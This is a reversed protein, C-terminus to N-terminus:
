LRRALVATTKAQFLKGNGADIAELFIIYIGVPLSEGHDNQGNWIVERTAGSRANNLLKAVAYGRLDFISLNVSSYQMPLEFRVVLVDDIGDGNPSFPNPLATLVGKREGPEIFISNRFGPTSGEPLVNPRWNNSLNADFQPNMREYSVGNRISADIEYSLSDIIINHFDLLKITDADNNLNPWSSISIAPVQIDKAVGDKLIIFEGPEIILSDSIAKSMSKEDGIKWGLLSIEQKGRNYLEVWEVNGHAPKAMFENLILDNRLFGVPLAFHGINNESREDNEAVLSYEIRKIGSSQFNSDFVLLAEDGPMLDIDMNKELQYGNELALSLSTLRAPLLGVNKVPISIQVHQNRRPKVPEWMIGSKIIEADWQRPSASNMRGPTSGSDALSHKWNLVSTSPRDTRVRELSVGQAQMELDSYVVSDVQSRAFDSLIIKEFLNNLTPFGAPEIIPVYAPIGYPERSLFGSALVAYQRAALVVDDQVIAARGAADHIRWGRLSISFPMTNYIEIWEPEDTFPSYMIENILMTGAAFSVSFKQQFVNNSNNEDGAAVLEAAIDFVGATDAHLIYSIDVKESSILPPVPLLQPVGFSTSIKLEAGMFADSGENRICFSFNIDADILPRGPVMFTESPALSLDLKKPSISNSFGPTGHVSTSNGWNLVHDGAILDRKEESIGGDNDLTYFYSALTDGAVSLLLIQESTSNSLGGSGLTKDNVHITLASPPIIDKYIGTEIDYDLDFIVAFQGPELFHSAALDSIAEVSNGDGILLSRLDVPTEGVNVIEIFEDTNESGLPDFMIESLVVQGYVNKGSFVLVLIFLQLYSRM